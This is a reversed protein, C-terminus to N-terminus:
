INEDTEEEAENIRKIEEELSSIEINSYRQFFLKISDGLYTHIQNISEEISGHLRIHSDADGLIQYHRLEKMTSSLDRLYQQLNNHVKDITEIYQEENM